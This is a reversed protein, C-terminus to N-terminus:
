RGRANASMGDLLSWSGSVSELDRRHQRVSHIDPDDPGDKAIRHSFCVRTGDLHFLPARHTDAKSQCASVLGGSRLTACTMRFLWAIVDPSRKVIRLTALIMGSQGFLSRKSDHRPVPTSPHSAMSAPPLSHHDSFFRWVFGIPFRGNLM